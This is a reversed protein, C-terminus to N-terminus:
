LGNTKVGIHPMTPKNRLSCARVRARHQEGPHEAGQAVAARIRRAKGDVAGCRRPMHLEGDAPRRSQSKPASTCGGRSRAARRERMTQVVGVEDEDDPGRISGRMRAAPHGGNRLHGDDAAPRRISIKLSTPRGSSHRPASRGRRCSRCGHWRGYGCPSRIRPSWPRRADTRWRAGVLAQHVVARQRVVVGDAALQDACPSDTGSRSRCRPRPRSDHGPPHALAGRQSCASSAESSRERRSRCRRPRCRSPKPTSRSGIAQLGATIASVSRQTANPVSYRASTSRGPMSVALTQSGSGAM